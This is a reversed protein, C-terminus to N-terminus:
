PKLGFVRVANQYAVKEIIEPPIHALVHTRLEKIIEDYKRHLGCCPDSGVMVRDPYRAILNVWNPRLGDETSTRRIGHMVGSGSLECFVNPVEDFIAALNEPRSRPMCHALITTANPFELSLKRLDLLADDSRNIHIQVFGKHRDALAYMRRIVPSDLPIKRQFRSNNSGGSMNDVHIEGFGKVTGATLMKEARLFFEVFLPHKDNQLGKEGDRFLVKTFERDGITGFYRPGLAQSLQTNYSGVGGGWRVNNRDMQAIQEAVTLDNNGYFHMHVDAIPVTNALAAAETTPDASAWSTILSISTSLVFFALISRAFRYMMM